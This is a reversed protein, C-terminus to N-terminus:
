WPIEEGNWAFFRGTTELNLRDITGRMAAVSDAPVLEARPGGMDTQVWGPHVVACAIGLPRWDLALSKWVANLAAKSSRYAYLGGSTNSGISGLGSSLAIAKRGQGKELNGRFAGAFALSGITNVQLVEIWSERDVLEPAMGRPGAVGANAILLDIPVSRLELVLRDLSSKEALELAHVSVSAGLARLSGAQEPHRCAGYVRWGEAAYQRAFELGLGRNAGSILLNPM